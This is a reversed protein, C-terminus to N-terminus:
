WYKGTFWNNFDHKKIIGFFLVLAPLIPIFWLGWIKEAGYNLARKNLYRNLFVNLVYFTIIILTTM